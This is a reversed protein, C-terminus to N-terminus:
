GVIRATGTARDIRVVPAGVADLTVTFSTADVSPGIPVSINRLRTTRGFRLTGAILGGAGSYSVYFDKPALETLTVPLVLKQTGGSTRVVAADGIGIAPGTGDDDDLIVGLGTANGLTLGPTPRTLVVAFTEDAESRPDAYVAATMTRTMVGRAFFVTGTARRFDAPPLDSTGGTATADALAWKVSLAKPAPQSLTVTFTMRRIGTNGELMAQSGISVTLSAPVLKQVTGDLAAVYLEGNADEGFTTPNNLTQSFEREGSSTYAALSSHCLDTYVYAGDLNAIASGRYVYGGIIACFGGIHSKEFEPDRGNPPQTGGNYPHFGERRNWGWNTGKEGAAAVDVEEWAGQGVDAIWLRGTQRDFSFRWPNRLGYMWIEARRNAMGVFPNDGPITYPLSASPTPDIRLIKGLLSNVNQANGDPDGGGGGDGTAIYLKGDPGFTIQGGNHNARPHPITLLNRPATATDGNMAYEVVRLNSGTDVYFVYLKAGDSSFTLGLLGQEDSGAVPVTLAAAGLSGNANVIRVTGTKEAVYMRPDGARFAIAVPSSLGAAFPQLALQVAPLNAAGGTSPAVALLGACALVAVLALSIRRRV